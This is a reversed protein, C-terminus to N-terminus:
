MVPQFNWNNNWQGNNLEFNNFQNSISWISSVPNTLQRNLESASPEGTPSQAVAGLSFNENSQWHSRLSVSADPAFAQNIAESADVEAAESAHIAPVVSLIGVAFVTLGLIIHPRKVNDGYDKGPLRCPCCRDLWQGQRINDRSKGIAWLTSAWLALDM